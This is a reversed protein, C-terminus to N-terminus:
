HREIFNGEWHLRGNQYLVGEQEQEVRMGASGYVGYPTVWDFQALLIGPVSDSSALSYTCPLNQSEPEAKSCSPLLTSSCQLINPPLGYGGAVWLACPRM